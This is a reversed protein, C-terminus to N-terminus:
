SLSSYFSDSETWKPDDEQVREQLEISALNSYPHGFDYDTEPTDCIESEEFAYSDLVKRGPM